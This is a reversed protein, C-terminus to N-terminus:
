LRDWRLPKDGWSGIAAIGANAEAKIEALRAEFRREMEIGLALWAAPAKTDDVRDRFQGDVYEFNDAQPVLYAMIAYMAGGLCLMDWHREPISCGNADLEHKTAYRVGIHDTTTEPLRANSLQIEFQPIGQTTNATPAVDGLGADPVADLFLDTSNDGIKAVLQAPAADPSRYIGRDIIGYPGLPIETLLAAYPAQPPARLTAIPVPITAGGGPAVFAVYWTHSGTITTGSVQTATAGGDPPEPIYPSLAEQFTQYWKPWQGYPYEVSDIWWCGEPSPYIRSGPITFMLEQKLYPAVSSYKDNARDLARAIDGDLWRPQEGTRQGADFLDTRIKGIFESVTPTGGTPVVVPSV